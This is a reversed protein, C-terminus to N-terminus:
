IGAMDLLIGILTTLVFAAVFGTFLAVLIRVPWPVLTDSLYGNVMLSLIATAVGFFAALADSM